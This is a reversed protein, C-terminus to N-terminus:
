LFFINLLVKNLLEAEFFCLLLPLVMVLVSGVVAFIFSKVKRIMLVAVAAGILLGAFRKLCVWEIYQRISFRASVTALDRISYAADRIGVTGCGKAVQYLYRGYIMGFILIVSAALLLIKWLHIRYKGAFSIRIMEHMGTRYEIYYLSTACLIVLLLAGAGMIINQTRNKYMLEFAKENVATAGDLPQLYAVYSSINALAQERDHLMSPNSSTRMAEEFEAQFEAILAPYEEPTVEQLRLLFGRYHMEELSYGMMYPKTFLLVWLVLLVFVFGIKELRLYKYCEHLFLNEHCGYSRHSHGGLTVHARGKRRAALGIGRNVMLIVTVALIVGITLIAVLAVLWESVPHDFVYFNRYQGLRGSVDAWAVLNLRKWTALYSLDGIKLYLIGEAGVTLFLILYVLRSSGCLIGLFMTIVAFFVSVLCSGAYVLLLFILISVPLAASKYGPVSQLPQLWDGAAPMGYLICGTFITSGLLLLNGIVIALSVAGLKACLLRGRGNSMTAYLSLLDQEKERVLVVSVFLVALLIELFPVSPLALARNIGKTQTRTLTIGSLASYDEATKDVNRIMRDNVVSFTKLVHYKKPAELIGKLYAPYALIDEYERQMESYLSMETWLNDCYRLKVESLAPGAEFYLVSRLVEYEETLKAYAAEDSLGALDDQMARYAEASPVTHTERYAFYGCNLLVLLLVIGVLRRNHWLKYWEHRFM